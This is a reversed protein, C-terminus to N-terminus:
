SVRVPFPKDPPLLDVARLIKAAAREDLQLNLRSNQRRFNEVRAAEDVVPVPQKSGELFDLAEQRTPM